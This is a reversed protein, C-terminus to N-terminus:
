LYSITSLLTLIVLILFIIMGTTDVHEEETNDEHGTEDWFSKSGYHICANIEGGGRFVRGVMVDWTFNNRVTLNTEFPPPTVM